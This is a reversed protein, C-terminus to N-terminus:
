AYGGADAAAGICRKFRFNISATRMVSKWDSIIVGASHALMNAAAALDTNAPFAHESEGVVAWLCSVLSRDSVGVELLGTDLRQDM